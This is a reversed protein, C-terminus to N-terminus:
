PGSESTLAVAATSKPVRLPAEVADPIIFPNPEIPAIAPPVIGPNKLSVQPQSPIKIKIAPDTKIAPERIIVFHFASGLSKPPSILFHSPILFKFHIRLRIM